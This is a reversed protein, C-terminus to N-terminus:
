EELYAECREQDRERGFNGYSQSFVSPTATFRYCTRRSPCHKDDCMTIDPM